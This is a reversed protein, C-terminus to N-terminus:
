RILKEDGDSFSGPYDLNKHKNFSVRSARKHTSEFTLAKVGNECYEAIKSPNKPDPWACGPCDFGKPQNMHLLAKNARIFGERKMFKMSSNLAGWGGAVEKQKNNKLDSM